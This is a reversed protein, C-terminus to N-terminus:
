SPETKPQQKRQSVLHAAAIIASVLLMLAYAKLM